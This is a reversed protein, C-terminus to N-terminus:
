ENPAFNLQTFVTTSVLNVSQKFITTKNVLNNVGELEPHTIDCASLSCANINTQKSITVQLMLMFVACSNLEIGNSETRQQIKM